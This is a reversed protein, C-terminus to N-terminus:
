LNHNLLEILWLGYHDFLFHLSLPLPSRLIETLLDLNERVIIREIEDGIDRCFQSHQFCGTEGDRNSSCPHHSHM